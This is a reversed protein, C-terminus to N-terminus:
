LDRYCGRTVHWSREREFFAEWGFAAIKRRKARPRDVFGRRSRELM